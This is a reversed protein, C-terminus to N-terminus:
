NRNKHISNIKSYGSITNLLSKFWESNLLERIRKVAKNTTREKLAYCEYPEWTVHIWKLEHKEAIYRLTLGVDAGGSSIQKAVEEHTRFETEYGRVNDMSLKHKRAFKRLMHDMYVRTGSGRNRNAIKLEGLLISKMASDISELEFESRYALVMERLFGGIREVKNFLWFRELYPENYTGTEPDYLHACAVDAERLTLMALSLGSGLCLGNVKIGERLLRSILASMLPDHSYAIVISPKSSLSRAPGTLGARELRAQAADYLMLLREGFETLSTGGRSRGGRHTKVIKRGTARELRAINEWLRAYPIGLSKSVALLSGKERIAKLVMAMSADIIPEGSFEIVVNYRVVFDEMGVMKYEVDRIIKNSKFVNDTKLYRFIKLAFCINHM